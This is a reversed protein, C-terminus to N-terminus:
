MADNPLLDTCSIYWPRNAFCETNALAICCIHYDDAEIIDIEFKKFINIDISVFKNHIPSYVHYQLDPTHSMWIYMCSMWIATKTAMHNPQIDMYQLM